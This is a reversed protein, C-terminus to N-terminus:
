LKEGFVEEFSFGTDKGSQLDAWAADLDARIEADTRPDEPALSDMLLMALEYREAPALALAEEALHDRCNLAM